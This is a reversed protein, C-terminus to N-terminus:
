KRVSIVYTETRVRRANTQGFVSITYRGPALLTVPLSITYDGDPNRVLGQDGLVVKKQADAMEVYYNRYSASTQPALMLAVRQVGQPIRVHNITAQLGREAQEVPLLSIVPTNMEPGSNEDVQKRLWAIEQGALDQQRRLETETQRLMQSETLAKELRDQIMRQQATLAAREVRGQHLGFFWGCAAVLLILSAAIAFCQWQPVQWWRSEQVGAPPVEVREEDQLARSQRVLELQEACERCVRLHREVTEQDSDMLPQEFAYDILTGTPVHQQHIARVIMTEEVERQCQECKELHDRVLQQETADLTDNLFWPVLETARKCDMM